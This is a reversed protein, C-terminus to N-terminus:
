EADAGLAVSRKRGGRRLHTESTKTCNDLDKVTVTYNGPALGNFVNNSQFSGSNLQYSFGTSGSATVTITIVSCRNYSGGNSKSCSYFVLTSAISFTTIFIQQSKISM